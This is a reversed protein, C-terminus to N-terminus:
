FTPEALNILRAHANRKWSGMDGYWVYYGGVADFGTKQFFTMGTHKALHVDKTQFKEVYKMNYMGVEKLPYDKDILWEMDNWKLVTHGALVEEPAYRTKTLETNLFTRAQGFNSILFDAKSGGVISNRNWIRQLLDQSVPAGLGDVVNGQWEPNATVSVNEFVTGFATTDCIRRFGSIEKGGGVPVGDLIRTKVLIDGSTINVAVNVTVTLTSANYNVATVLGATMEKTGAVATWADLKMGRRFPFPNDVPITISGPGAAVLATTLAMQGTGTGCTQRNLDSYMRGANDKQQADMSTVFAQKNTESLEIATGTLEFPWVVRKSLIQPQIPNLSGPEQFGEDENIAGGNENGSMSVPMFIGQPTPKIPSVPIKGWSYTNLNQQTVLVESGEDYNRKYIGDLTVTNSM